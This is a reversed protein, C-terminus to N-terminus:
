QNNAKKTASQPATTENRDKLPPSAAKQRLNPTINSHVFAEFRDFDTGFVDKINQRYRMIIEDREKQLEALEPIPVPLPAPAGPTIAPQQARLRMSVQRALDDKIKIESACSTATQMLFDNQGDTLNAIRKYLTRYRSGDEGKSEAVRAKEEFSALHRFLFLLTVQEPIASTTGTANFQISPSIRQNSNVPTATASPVPRSSFHLDPKSQVSQIFVSIFNPQKALVAISGLVILALVVPVFRNRM